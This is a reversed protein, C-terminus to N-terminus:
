NGMLHREIKSLQTVPFPLSKSVTEKVKQLIILLAVKVSGTIM